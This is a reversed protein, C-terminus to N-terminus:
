SSVIPLSACLRVGGYATDEIALHGGVRQLRNAMGKLGQGHKAGRMGIGNDTVELEIGANGRRLDIRCTTADAHRAVNTVAERVLGLVLNATEFDDVLLGNDMHLEFRPTEFPAILQNLADSLELGDSKQFNSVLARIDSLLTDVLDHCDTATNRNPGDTSRALKRLNMKLATLRHGAIDHLERSMRLRERDRASEMLLSRTALLEANTAALEQRAAESRSAQVALALALFQVCLYLFMVLFASSLPAGYLAVSATFDLLNLALVVLIGV